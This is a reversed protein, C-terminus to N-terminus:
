PLTRAVRFGYCVFRIHTATWNRYASRVNEPVYCWSGGRLVRGECKGGTWASGDRPTLDYSEEYCDEVWEWVNGLMDHLGFGNARFSGVPASKAYGDRCDHHPWYFDNESKSTRDNVNAYSCAGDPDAGWHRATTTGARTAYEWESESLLRYEHGTKRSLWRVYAKADHWNVCVVPHRDDQPFGPDRWNKDQRWPWGEGLQFIRCK